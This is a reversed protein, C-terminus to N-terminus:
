TKKDATEKMVKERFASEDADAEAISNLEKEERRKDLFEVIEDMNDIIPQLDKLISTVTKLENELEDNKKQQNAILDALQSKTEGFEIKIKAIDNSTQFGNISLFEFVKKYNEVITEEDYDYRKRASQRAHGFMLDKIEQPQIAARLLASNYFSRLAKTKFEKAKEKGFAREALSKIAENIARVELQSNKSKTQGVFLFGSGPNGREQLMARIDHLAEVSLCTAQMEGTKERPKEFFLHESEPKTYLDPFEEIHLVSVDVESLGSQGLVLLLSKDRLNAHHYMTKVDNKTIKLRKEVHQEMTSEWDGRKLNLPLGNRSFFSSVATLMTKVTSPKLNGRQELFQKYARFQEEFFTRETIDEVVLDHMRKRIQETPTSGMFVFWDNIAITYNAQTGKGLGVMWKKYFNDEEYPYHMKEKGNISVPKETL